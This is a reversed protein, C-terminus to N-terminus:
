AGMVVRFGDLGAVRRFAAGVLFGAVFARGFAVRGFAWFFFALSDSALRGGRGAVVSGM